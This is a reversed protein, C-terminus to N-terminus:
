HFDETILGRNEWGVLRYPVPDEEQGLQAVTALRYVAQTTAEVVQIDIRVVDQPVWIASQLALKDRKPDPAQYVSVRPSLCAQVSPTMGMVMGLDEPTHFPMGMPAFARGAAQYIAQASEEAAPSRWAVIAEALRHAADPQSVGCQAVVSTFTDSSVQNLNMQGELPTMKIMLMNGGASTLRHNSSGHRPWGAEHAVLSFLAADVAGRADAELQAARQQGMAQALDQGAGSAVQAIILGLIGLVLLVM